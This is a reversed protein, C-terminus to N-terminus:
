TGSRGKLYTPHKELSGLPFRVKKRKQHGMQPLHTGQGKSTPNFSGLEQTQTIEIPDTRPSLPLDKRSQQQISRKVKVKQNFYLHKGSFGRFTSFKKCPPEQLLWTNSLWNNDLPGLPFRVDQPHGIQEFACTASPQNPLRPRAVVWSPRPSARPCAQHLM